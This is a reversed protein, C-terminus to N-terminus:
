FNPSIKFSLIALAAFSLASAAAADPAVYAYVVAWSPAPFANSKASSLDLNITSLVFEPMSLVVSRATFPISFVVLKTSYYALLVPWNPFSM